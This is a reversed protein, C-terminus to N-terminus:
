APLLGLGKLPWNSLILFIQSLSAGRPLRSVQQMLDHDLQARDVNYHRLIFQLDCQEQQLLQNLWHVLEVYPNGKLRCLETGSEISESLVHNLKEFLTRRIIIM